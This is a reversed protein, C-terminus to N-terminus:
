RNSRGRRATAGRGRGGRGRTPTTKATPTTPSEKVPEPEAVETEVSEVKDEDDGVEIVPVETKVEQVDDDEAVMSEPEDTGNQEVVPKNEEPEDIRARKEVVGAEIEETKM